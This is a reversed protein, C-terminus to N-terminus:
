GFAEDPIHTPTTEVVASADAQFMQDGHALQFDTNLSYVLPPPRNGQNFQIPLIFQKPSRPECNHHDVSFEPRTAMCPIMELTYDGTYDRLSLDSTAQWTQMPYDYTEQQWELMLNFKVPLNSPPILYSQQGPLRPHSLVFTGRFKTQTKITICLNGADTLRVRVVNIKADVNDNTTRVRDNSLATDYNFSIELTTRHDISGWNNPPVAYIYSVYLPVTVTVARQGFQNSRANANTNVTGGCRDVLTTMDYNADFKWTCTEMNLHTYLQVTMNGRITSDLM